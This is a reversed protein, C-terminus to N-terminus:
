IAVISYFPPLDTNWTALKEQIFRKLGIFHTIHSWLGLDLGCILKGEAVSYCLSLLELNWICYSFNKFLTFVCFLSRVSFELKYTFYANILYM